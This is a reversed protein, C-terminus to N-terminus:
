RQKKFPSGNRIRWYMLRIKVIIRRHWKIPTAGELRMSWAARKRKDDYGIVWYLALVTLSGALAFPLRTSFEDDTNSLRGILSPILEQTSPHQVMGIFLCEDMFFGHSGLGDLRLYLALCFILALLIYNKYKKV